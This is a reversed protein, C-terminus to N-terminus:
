ERGIRMTFGFVFSIVLFIGVGGWVVFCYTDKRLAELEGLLIGRPDWIVLMLTGECVKCRM